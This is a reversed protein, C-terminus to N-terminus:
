FDFDMSELKEAIDEPERSVVKDPSWVEVGRITGIFLVDRSLGIRERQLQPILMRGQADVETLVANQTYFRIIDRNDKKSAPLAVLKKELAEWEKIPYIYLSDKDIGRNLIFREGLDARFASPIFVRSKSDLVNTFSGILM